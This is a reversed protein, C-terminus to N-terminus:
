SGGDLLSESRRNGDIAGSIAGRAGYPARDPHRDARRLEGAAM